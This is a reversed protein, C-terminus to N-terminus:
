VRGALCDGMKVQISIMFESFQFVCPLESRSEGRVAARLEVSASRMFLCLRSGLTHKCAHVMAGTAAHEKKAAGVAKVTASDIAISTEGTRACHEGFFSVSLPVPALNPYATCVSPILATM